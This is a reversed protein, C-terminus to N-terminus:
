LLIGPSERSIFSFNDFKLGSFKPCALLIEPIVGEAIEM